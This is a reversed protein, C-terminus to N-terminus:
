DKMPLTFWFSNSEDAVSEVGIAGGHAEVALKCFTLGLGTGYKRKEGELQTFKEFIKDKFEPPIGPGRDTVALRAYAGKRDLTLNVVEEVPTFKLANGVLNTIIRGVLDKDYNAVVPEPANLIIRRDPAVTHMSEVVAQATVALDGRTKTMPMRGSELRSIDLLQNVMETLKNVNGVAMDLYKTVKPPPTAVNMQVLELSMMIAFLPSRMDHVVMHALNERLIELEKLREYSRQLEVKQRRLELHTRVRADVEAFQFPKTVYDVGGLAFARVKDMTEHQASIFMIPIPALLPDAKFRECVEFGDMEPMQIDLLVLDPQERVAAALALRGRPFSRVQYGQKGLMEELLKLNPITDDVVMIKPPDDAIPM